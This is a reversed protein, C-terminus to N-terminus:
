RAMPFVCPMSLPLIPWQYELSHCQVPLVPRALTDFSYLRQWLDLDLSLLWDM